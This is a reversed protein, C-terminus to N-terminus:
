NAIAEIVSQPAMTPVIRTLKYDAANLLACFEAITRERGGNMALMNLDLLNSFSPSAADPVIMEVLLLRGSGTMAKRCNRLITVARDDDWDHIVGCLLYADAGQPVSTFFNGTVYSCRRSRANNGLQEQSRQITSSTDFVTGRMDPNFQLIKELLEGQGGGIDVISSIGAFDYAILVAYALMSSVSAMGQNFADSADVNQQLYDFLNAGFVDNFAPSGTQVSYLLNGWAQYHIEGLTIVMARLSGHVTTQLSEALQSLAFRDKDIQSFIGVSSLARMLRFLSPADSGTSTALAVYSQSGDKLLDAIGLKAAVYIAQSLWYATAMEFLVPPSPNREKTTAIRVPFLRHRLLPKMEAWLGMRRARHFVQLLPRLSWRRAVM